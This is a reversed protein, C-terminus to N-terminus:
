TRIDVSFRRNRELSTLKACFKLYIPNGGGVMRRRLISPQTKKTPYLFRSQDKKRKTVIWSNSLRVSVVSVKRTALGRQYKM